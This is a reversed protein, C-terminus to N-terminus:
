QIVARGITHGKAAESYIKVEYLIEFLHHCEGARFMCSIYTLMNVQLM